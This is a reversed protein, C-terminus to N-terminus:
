RMDTPTGRVLLAGARDGEVVQRVEVVLPAHEHVLAQYFKTGKTGVITVYKLVEDSAKFVLFHKSGIRFTSGRKLARYAEWAPNSPAPDAPTSDWDFDDM